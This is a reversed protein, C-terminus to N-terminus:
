HTITFCSILFNLLYAGQWPAFNIEYLRKPTYLIGIYNEIKSDRSKGIDNKLSRKTEKVGM